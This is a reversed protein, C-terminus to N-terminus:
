TRVHVGLDPLTLAAMPDLIRDAAASAPLGEAAALNAIAGAVAPTAFSTGSWTAYGSFGDPDFGNVRPRPGDFRIFCSTLGVGQTCADVWWGYNSFWARDAGDLAAVAIVQKLAAPWFPRDSATNGACAVVVVRHGRPGRGAVGLAAIARAVLPSPRDDYTHCGISLNVIDAQGWRAVWNLARIMDLEDGVGDGGIVRKARIRATPAQQLLVGAIFTGHGAQADLEYDLDADLLETVEDRQEQYWDYSEYWPHVSLGTDLVAITVPGAATAARPADVPATPRPLDAPGAWWLPQGHVLHNPAVALRRHRGDGSLQAALECVNVRAPPRLRIRALSAHDERAHFWRRVLDEVAPADRDAVLLQDRRILTPREDELSVVTADRHRALLRELMAEQDFM